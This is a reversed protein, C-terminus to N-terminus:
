NVAIYIFPHSFILILCYFHLNKIKQVLINHRAIEQPTREVKVKIKKTRKRPTQMAKKEPPTNTNAQQKKM